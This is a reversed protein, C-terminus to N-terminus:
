AHELWIPPTFERWSPFASAATASYALGWATGHEMFGPAPACNAAAALWARQEQGRHGRAARHRPASMIEQSAHSRHAQRGLAPHLGECPGGEALPLWLAGPPPSSLHESRGRRTCGKGDGRKTCLQNTRLQQVATQELNIGQAKGRPKCAWFQLIEKVRAHKWSYMAIFSGKGIGYDAPFSIWSSSTSERQPLNKTAHASLNNGRNRPSALQLLHAAYRVGATLSSRQSTRCNKLPHLRSRKEGM